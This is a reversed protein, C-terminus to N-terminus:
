CCKTAAFEWAVKKKEYRDISQESLGKLQWGMGFLAEIEKRTFFKKFQGKVHYLGPEIEPYGTAGYNIDNSSNLRCILVGGCKLVRLVESM